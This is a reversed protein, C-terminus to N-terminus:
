DRRGAPRRGRDGDGPPLPLVRDRVGGCAGPADLDPGAALAAEPPGRLRHEPSQLQRGPVRSRGDRAPPRRRGPRAPTATATLAMFPVDPLEERLAGLTLYDPRFEHGWQSICHAEDVAVFGVALRRLLDPFSPLAVREPAVYLLKLEGQIAAQRVAAVEEPRMSSNLCGAAIGRARLADVQDKMLAILPSIVLTTGDRALAPLQYCLSKGGGTPMLVVTDRGTLAARIAREQLPRFADHGFRRRLLNRLADSEPPANRDRPRNGEPLAPAVAGAAARAGEPRRVPRPARM